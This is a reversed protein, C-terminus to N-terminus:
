KKRRTNNILKENHEDCLFNGESTQWTRKEFCIDCKQKFDIDVKLIKYLWFLIRKKTENKM